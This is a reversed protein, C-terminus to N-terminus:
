GRWQHGCDVCVRQNLLLHALAIAALMIAAVIAANLQFVLVAPLAAAILVVYVIWITTGGRRIKYSQCNPCSEDSKM